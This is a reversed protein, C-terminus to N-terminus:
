MRGKQSLREVFQCNVLQALSALQGVLESLTRRDERGGRSNSMNWWGWSKWPHWSGFVLGEARVALVEGLGTGLGM